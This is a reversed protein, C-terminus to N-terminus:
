NVSFKYVSGGSVTVIFYKRSRAQTLAMVMTMRGFVPFQKLRKLGSSFREGNIAITRKVIRFRVLLQIMGPGDPHVFAFCFESGVLVVVVVTRRTGRGTAMAAAGALGFLLVAFELVVVVVVVGGGGGGKMLITSDIMSTSHLGAAHSLSSTWTRSLHSSLDSSCM